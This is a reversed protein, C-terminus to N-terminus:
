NCSLGMRVITEHLIRPSASGSAELPKPVMLVRQVPVAWRAPMEGPKTVFIQIPRDDIVELTHRAPMSVTDRDRIGFCRERKPFQPIGKGSQGFGDLAFGFRSVEDSDNQRRTRHKREGYQSAERRSAGKDGQIRVVGAIPEALHQLIRPRGQDNSSLIDESADLSARWRRVDETQATQRLGSSLAPAGGFEAQVLRCAHHKRGPAGAPRLADDITLPAKQLANGLGYVCRVDIGLVPKQGQGRKAGDDADSVGYGRQERTGTNM